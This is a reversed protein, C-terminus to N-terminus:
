SLRRCVLFKSFLRLLIEKTYKRVIFLCRFPKETVLMKPINSATVIKYFQLKKKVEDASSQM